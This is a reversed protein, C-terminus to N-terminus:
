EHWRTATAPAICRRQPRPRRRPAAHRPAGLPDTGLEPHSSDVRGTALLSHAASGPTSNFDGCVVMPIEASADIKELGKLLTHM